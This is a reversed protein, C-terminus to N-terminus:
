AGEAEEEEESPFHFSTRATTSCRESRPFRGANGSFICAMVEDGNEHLPLLARHLRWNVIMHSLNGLLLLRTVYHSSRIIYVYRFNGVFPLRLVRM